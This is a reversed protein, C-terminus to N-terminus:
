RGAGDLALLNGDPVVISPRTTALRARAQARNEPTNDITHRYAGATRAAISAWGYRTAVMDRAQRAM